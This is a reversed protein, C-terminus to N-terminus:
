YRAATDESGLVQVQLTSTDHKYMYENFSHIFSYAIFCHAPLLGAEWAQHVPKGPAPGVREEGDGSSRFVCEVRSLVFWENKQLRSVCEPERVQARSKKAGSFALKDDRGTFTRSM